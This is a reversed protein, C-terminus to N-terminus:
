REGEVTERTNSPSKVACQEGSPCRWWWWLDWSPKPVKTRTTWRWSPHVETTSPRVCYRRAACTGWELHLFGPGREWQCVECTIHQVFISGGRTVVVVWQPLWPWDCPISHEMNHWRTTRGEQLLGFWWSCIGQAPASCQTDACTCGQQEHRLSCFSETGENKRRTGQPVGSNSRNESWDCRLWRERVHRHSLGAHTTTKRFGMSKCQLWKNKAHQEKHIHMRAAVDWLRCTRSNWYWCGSKQGNSKPYGWSTRGKRNSSPNGFPCIWYQVWSQSADQDSHRPQSPRSGHHMGKALWGLCDVQDDIGQCMGRLLSDEVKRSLKACTFVRQLTLWRCWQTSTGWIIGWKWYTLVWCLTLSLISIVGLQITEQPNQLTRVHKAGWWDLQRLWSLLHGEQRWSTRWPLLHQIALNGACVDSPLGLEHPCHEGIREGRSRMWLPELSQLNIWFSNSTRQQLWLNTLIMWCRTTRDLCSM